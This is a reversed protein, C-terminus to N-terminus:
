AGLLSAIAKLEDADIGTSKAHEILRDTQKGGGTKGQITSQGSGSGKPLKKALANGKDFRARLAAFDMAMKYVRHDTLNDIEYGSVGYEAGLATVSDHTAKRFDPDSSLQPVAEHLAAQERQLIGQFQEQAAAQQEPTAPMMAALQNLEGRTRMVENQFRTELSALNNGRTDLDLGGKIADKMAGMSMPETGDGFGVTLGYLTEMNIGARDALEKFTKVPEAAEGNTDAAPEAGPEADTADGTDASGAATDLGNGAGSPAPEPDKTLIEANENDAGLEGPKGADLLSAIAEIQAGEGLVAGSPATDDSM